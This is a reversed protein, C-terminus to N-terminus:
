SFGRPFPKRSCDDVSALVMALAILPLALAAQFRWAPWLRVPRLSLAYGQGYFEPTKEKILGPTTVIPNSLYKIFAEKCLAINEAIVDL